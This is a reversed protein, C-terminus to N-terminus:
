GVFLMEWKTVRMKDCPAHWSYIIRVESVSCKHRIDLGISHTISSHHRTIM